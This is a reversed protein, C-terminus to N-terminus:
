WICRRPTAPLPSQRSKKKTNQKNTKYVCVCFVLRCVHRHARLVHLFGQPAATLPAATDTLLWVPPADSSRPACGNFACGQRHAAVRPARRVIKPRLRQLRLRTQSSGRPPADSSRPACGNFTSGQRHAAAHPARSSICPLILYGAFLEHQRHCARRAIWSGTAAALDM